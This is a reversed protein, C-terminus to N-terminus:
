MDKFVQKNEDKDPDEKGLLLLLFIRSGKKIVPIVSASPVNAQM